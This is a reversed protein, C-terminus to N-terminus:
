MLHYFYQFFPNEEPLYRSMIFYAQTFSKVFIMDPAWPAYSVYPPSTTDQSNWLFKQRRKNIHTM